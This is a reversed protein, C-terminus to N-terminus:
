VIEATNLTNDDSPEEEKCLFECIRRNNVPSNAHSAIHSHTPSNAHSPATPDSYITNRSNYLKYKKLITKVSNSRPQKQIMFDLEPLPRIKYNADITNFIVYEQIFASYPIFDNLSHHAICLSSYLKDTVLFINSFINIYIKPAVSIVYLLSLSIIFNMVNVIVLVISYKKYHGNISTLKENISSYQVVESKLNNNPLSNDIDLYKIFITERYFELLYFGVFIALTFFNFAFVFINFQSMANIREQFTCEKFLNTTFECTDIVFLSLLTSLVVKTSTYLFLFVTTLIQKNNDSLFLM